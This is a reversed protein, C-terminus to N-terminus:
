SSSEQPIWIWISISIDRGRDTQRWTRINMAVSKRLLTRTLDRGDSRGLASEVNELPAITHRRSQSQEIISAERVHRAPNPTTNRGRKGQRKSQNVRCTRHAKRDRSIGSMKRCYILDFKSISAFRPLLQDLAYQASGITITTTTFSLRELKRCRKKPIQDSLVM